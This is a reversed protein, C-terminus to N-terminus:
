VSQTVSAGDSMVMANSRLLVPLAGTDWLDITNTIRRALADRHAQSAREHLHRLNTTIWVETWAAYTFGGKIPLRLHYGDLVPLLKDISVNNAYEDIVLKREGEYGDWWKGIDAGQIKYVGMGDGMATRTKGTGTPGTVLTCVIERFTRTSAKKVLEDYKSFGKHYRMFLGINSRAVDLMGCGNDIMRKVNEIDSRAGQTTFAGMSRFTGEKRCYTENQAPSGRCPEIHIKRCGFYRKVWHMEKPHVFQVWGQYHTRGSTPCTEEGWGVYSVIDIYDGYIKRHDLLEFDTFVWNKARQRRLQAM